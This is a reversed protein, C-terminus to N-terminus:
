LKSFGTHPTASPNQHFTWNQCCSHHLVSRTIADVVDIVRTKVGAVDIVIVPLSPHAKPSLRLKFFSTFRCDSFSLKTNNVM